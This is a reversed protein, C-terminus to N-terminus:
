RVDARRDPWGVGLHGMSPSIQMCISNSPDRSLRRKQRRRRRRLRFNLKSGGHNYAHESESERDSGSTCRETSRSACSDDGGSIWDTDYVLWRHKHVCLIM